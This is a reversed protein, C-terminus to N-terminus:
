LGCIEHVESQTIIFLYFQFLFLWCPDHGQYLKSKTLFHTAISRFHLRSRRFLIFNHPCTFPCSTECILSTTARNLKLPTRPRKNGCPSNKVKCKYLLHTWERQIELKLTDKCRNKPYMTPLNVINQQSQIIQFTVLTKLM